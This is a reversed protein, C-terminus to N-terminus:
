AAGGRQCLLPGIAARQGQAFTEAALTVEGGCRFEDNSIWLCFAERGPRPLALGIPGAEGVHIIRAAGVEVHRINPDLRDTIDHVEVRGVNGFDESELPRQDFGVSDGRQQWMRIFPHGSISIGLRLPQDWHVKGEFAHLEATIALLQM